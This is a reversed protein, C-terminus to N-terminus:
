HKIGKAIDTVHIVEDFLNLIEESPQEMEKRLREMAHQPVVRDKSRMKNQICCVEYPVDFLVLIHKDFNPTKEYYFKRYQNQLNTADAIVYVDEDSATYSNIRDLYTKWILKEDNFANVKGFIEKRIEDSSIIHTNHHEKAFKRAWTSKGSGPIASLLIMTKM